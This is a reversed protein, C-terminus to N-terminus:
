CSMARATLAQGRAQTHHLNGARSRFRNWMSLHWLPNPRQLGTSPALAWFLSPASPSLPQLKLCAVRRTAAFSLVAVSANSRSGQSKACPVDARWSIQTFYPADQVTKTCSACVAGCSPPCDTLDATSAKARFPNSMSRPPCPNSTSRRPRTRTSPALAWASLLPLVRSSQLKLCTNRRSPLDTRSTIIKRARCPKIAYGQAYTPLIGFYQGKCWSIRHSCAAHPAVADPHHCFETM